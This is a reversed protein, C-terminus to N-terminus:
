SIKYDSVYTGLLETKWTITNLAETTWVVTNDSTTGGVTTNWTVPETGNSTGGTTCVYQYTNPTTPTIKEGTTYVHTAAWNTFTDVITNGIVVPWVPEVDGTEGVDQAIYQFTNATTPAVITETKVDERYSTWDKAWPGPYGMGGPMYDTLPIAQQELIYVTGNSTDTQYSINVDDTIYLEHSDSVKPLAYSSGIAVFSGKYIQIELLHDTTMDDSVGNNVILVKRLGGTAIKPTFHGWTSASSIITTTSQTNQISM